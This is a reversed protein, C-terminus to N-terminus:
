QLIDIFIKRSNGISKESLNRVCCVCLLLQVSQTRMRMNYTFLVSNLEELTIYAYFVLDM